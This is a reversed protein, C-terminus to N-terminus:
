NTKVNPSLIGGPLSNFKESWALLVDPAGDNIDTSKRCEQAHYDHKHSRVYIILQKFFKVLEDGYVLPQLGEQPKEGDPTNPPQFDGEIIKQVRSSDITAGPINIKGQLAVLNIKNAVINIHSISKAGGDDLFLDIYSPNTTNRELQKGPIFKGARITVRQSKFVIDTNDKGNISSEDYIKHPSYFPIQPEQNMYYNPYLGGAKDINQGKDVTVKPSRLQQPLLLNFYSLTEEGEYKEPHSVLPGIWLRKLSENKDGFPLIIRVVDNVNPLMNYFIPLFPDCYPIKDEPTHRAMDLSTVVKIRFPFNPDKGVEIVTGEYLIIRGATLSLLEKYDSSGLTNELGM